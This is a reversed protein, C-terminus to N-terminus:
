KGDFCVVRSVVKERPLKAVVPKVEAMFEDISQRLGAADLRRKRGVVGTAKRSVIKNRRKFHAIWFPSAVFSPFKLQEAAVLGWEEIDRDHIEMGEDFASSFEDLVRDNISRYKNYVTGGHTLYERIRYTSLLSPYALRRYPDCRHIEKASNLLKFQHKVQEFTKKKKPDPSFYLEVIREMDKLDPYKSLTPDRGIVIEEYEEDDPLNFDFALTVHGSALEELVPYPSTLLFHSPELNITGELWEDLRGREETPLEMAKLKALLAQSTSDMASYIAYVIHSDLTQATNVVLM